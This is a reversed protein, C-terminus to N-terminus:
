AAAKDEEPLANELRNEFDTLLWGFALASMDLNDLMQFHDDRLEEDERLIMRGTEKDLTFASKNSCFNPHAFESLWVYLGKFIEKKEGFAETDLHKDAYEICTLINVPAKAKDFLNDKAGMLGNAIDEEFRKFEINGKHLSELRRAFYGLLALAEIHGRVVLALGYVNKSEFMQGTATMLREARHLLVQKLLQCNRKARQKDTLKEPDGYEVYDLRQGTLATHAAELNKRLEEKSADKLWQAAPESFCPM